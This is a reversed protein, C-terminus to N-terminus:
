KQWMEFRSQKVNLVSDFYYNAYEYLWRYKEVISYDDQNGNDFINRLIENCEDVTTLRFYNVFYKSDDEKIIMKEAILSDVLAQHIDLLDNSIIIRPNKAYQKELMYAKILAESFLFDHESFHKGFAIGGRSLIGKKFMEFQIGQAVRIITTINQQLNKAVLPLSFVISDSFQKLDVRDKFQNKVYFFCEKLKEFYSTESKKECDSEVMTSFGLIDIYAVIHYELAM